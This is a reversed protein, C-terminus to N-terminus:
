HLVFVAMFLLHFDYDKSSVYLVLIGMVVPTHFVWFHSVVQILWFLMIKTLRTMHVGKPEEPYLVKNNGIVHMEPNGDHANCLHLATQKTVSSLDLHLCRGTDILMYYYLADYSLAGM